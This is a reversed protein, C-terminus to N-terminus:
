ITFARNYAETWKAVNVGRVLLWLCLAVEALGTAMLVALVTSALGPALFDVFSNAFYALGEVVLFFGLIRPIFTAHLILYGRAIMTGGFFALAMAYGIGQLQLAMYTQAQLVQQDIGLDRGKKLLVLPAFHGLLAASQVASGVLSFFVAMLAVRPNVVKLLEYLLLILPMVCLLAILDASFGWRFLQENALINNATAVANNAVVLRERVVLEAITGGVIVILYLAGAIRAYLQPSFPTQVVGTTTTM